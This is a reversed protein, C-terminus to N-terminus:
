SHFNSIISIIPHLISSQGEKMNALARRAPIPSSYPTRSEGSLLCFIIILYFTFILKGFSKALLKNLIYFNPRLQPDLAWCETMIDYIGDPCGEPPDM